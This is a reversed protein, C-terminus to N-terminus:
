VHNEYLQLVCKKLMMSYMKIKFYSARWKVDDQLEDELFQM